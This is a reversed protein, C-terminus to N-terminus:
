KLGNTLKLYSPMTLWSNRAIEPNARPHEDLYRQKNSIRLKLASLKNQRNAALESVRQPNRRLIYRTNDIVVEALESEFLHMQFAGTKLLQRIQAKTIATIYHFEHEKLAQLQPLKLMGRDGVLTVKSVGFGHALIRIQEAGTKPDSTNGAFVRVAVPAGEPGTLLGIVLQQKGKKGDRNYGFAALVNNVGELYSSTVDYLFLQPAADGYRRRFLRQEIAEQHQALWALNQYLHEEHFPDLGLLDCAAHSEALRVARRRSGQDMLRAFVQWLALKGPRQSGLAQALGLRRAVALLCCVAGIRAGQQASLEQVSGLQALDGKYRLALKIAAIEEESCHSLNAITRHKVKGAHRYSERLM